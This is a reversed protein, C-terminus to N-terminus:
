ANPYAEKFNGEQLVIWNEYGEEGCNPCETEPLKIVKGLLDKKSIYLHHYCKYCKFVIDPNTKAM